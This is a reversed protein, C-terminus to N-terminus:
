VVACLRYAERLEALADGSSVGFEHGVYGDYATEAIARCIGPYHLEQRDDMLHRGPNGATHVHGIHRVHRRFTRILDGEMIQMHYIDYLLKVRPSGVMECLAAGWSTHDCLYGPHDVKSNLLEVNLNVGREEAYSAIRRLGQACAIMGEADDQGPNRNGSFCILGPIAKAAAIDISARLEAEIREHNEVVNLGDELTGHGCMSAVVLDAAHAADVVAAWDPLGDRAWFEVADFGIAKVAAFFEALDGSADAYLSICLSQKIASM